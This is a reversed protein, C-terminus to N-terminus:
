KATTGAATSVTKVIFNSPAKPKVPASYNLTVFSSYLRNTDYAAIQFDYSVGPEGKLTYSTVTKALPVTQWVTDAKKKYRLEFGGLESSPLASNDERQTPAAWATTVSTVLDGTQAFTATPLCCMVLLFIASLLKM